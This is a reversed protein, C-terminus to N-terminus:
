DAQTTALAAAAEDVRDFVRFLKDFGIMEFIEQVRSNLGYLAVDGGGAQAQRRVSLLARLGSSSIYHVASLDIVLHVRGQQVAQALVTELAPVTVADLRGQPAIRDVLHTLPEQLIDM